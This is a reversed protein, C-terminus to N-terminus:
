KGSEHIRIVTEVINSFAKEVNKRAIPSISNGFGFDKGQVSVRWAPLDRQCTSRFVGMLAAPNLPAQCDMIPSAPTLRNCCWGNELNEAIADIFVVLGVFRMENLLDFTLHPTILFKFTESVHLIMELKEVIFPGIGADRYQRNGVGVILVGSPEIGNKM